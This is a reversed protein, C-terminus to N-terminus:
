LWVEVDGAKWLKSGHIDHYELKWALGNKRCIGGNWVYARWAWCGGYALVLFTSSTIVFAM